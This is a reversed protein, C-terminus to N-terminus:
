YETPTNLETEAAGSLQQIWDGGPVVNSVPNSLSLVLPRLSMIHEPVDNHNYYEDIVICAESRMLVILRLFRKFLGQYPQRAGRRACENRERQSAELWTQLMILELTYSAGSCQELSTGERVWLKAMRCLSRFQARSNQFYRTQLHNFSPSYLSAVNAPVTTLAVPDTRPEGEDDRGGLLLDCAVHHGNVGVCKFGLSRAHVDIRGALELHDSATM